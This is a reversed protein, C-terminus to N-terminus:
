VAEGGTLLRINSQGAPVYLDCVITAVTGHGFSGEYKSSDPNQCYLNKSMHKEKDETTIARHYETYNPDTYKPPEPRHECFRCTSCNEGAAVRKDSEAVRAWHAEAVIRKQEKEREAAVDEVYGMVQGPAPFFGKRDNKIFRLVGEHIVWPDIGAFVELWLAERADWDTDTWNQAQTPYATKLKFLEVTVVAYFSAFQKESMGTDAMIGPRIREIPEPYQGPNNTILSTQM